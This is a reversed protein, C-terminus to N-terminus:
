PTSTPHAGKSARELAEELERPKYNEDHKALIIDAKFINNDSFRGQAIVGQGERFLDPLIGVYRVTVTAAGDTVDFRTEANDGQMVTGAAVLGGLRIRPANRSASDLESPSYFYAVNHELASLILFAAAGLAGAGAALYAIRKSRKVPKM